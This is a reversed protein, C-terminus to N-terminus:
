LKIGFDDPHKNRTTNLVPNVKVTESDYLYYDEKM